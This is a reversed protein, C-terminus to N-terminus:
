RLMIHHYQRQCLQRGMFWLKKIIWHDEIYLQTKSEYLSSSLVNITETVLQCPAYICSYLKYSWDYYDDVENIDESLTYCIGSNAIFTGENCRSGKNIMVYDKYVQGYWTYLQNTISSYFFKCHILSDEYWRGVPYNLKRNSINDIM